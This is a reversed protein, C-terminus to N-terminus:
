QKKKSLTAQLKKLAEELSLAAITVNHEPFFYEAEVTSEAQVGGMMKNQTDRKTLM